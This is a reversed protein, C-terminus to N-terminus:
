RSGLSASNAPSLSSSGVQYGAYEITLTAEGGLRVKTESKTMGPLWFEGVKSYSHHIETNKIWFSPNQAPQADLKMVAYDQADVWIKGRYLLQRVTKPEVQLLYAKRGNLVDQGILNFRYNAETLANEDAHHSAEEESKLLRKLVRNILLSSGSQSIVTFNRSAPANYTADVEMSAEAGHPFGHYEVRYSRRCRLSTLHQARELNRAILKQVVEETSPLPTASQAAGDAQAMAPSGGALALMLSLAFIAQLNIRKLFAAGNKGM